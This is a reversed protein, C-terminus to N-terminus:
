KLTALYEDLQNLTGAFGQNMSPFNNEFTTVEEENARIPIGRMILTTKGNKEEFTITNLVELPWTPAMPHRTFGGTEDSFSVVFVLKEPPQIDHYVFKGWM